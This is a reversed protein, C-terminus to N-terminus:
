VTPIHPNHPHLVLSVGTAFFEADGEADFHGGLREIQARPLVGHVASRNVGAREFLDGGQLSRSVGGGGGDRVWAEAVFRTGQELSQVRETVRDHLDTIWATAEAQFSPRTM